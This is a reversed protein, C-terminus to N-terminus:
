QKRRLEIELKARRAQVDDPFTAGGAAMKSDTHHQQALEALREWHAFTMAQQPWGARRWLAVFLERVLHRHQGALKDCHVIAQDPAPFEASQELLAEALSEILQQADRAAAGLRVLAAAVDPNYDAALQPLLDHRIRNRTFGRDRNSSDDCYPQGLDALYAVIESRRVDLLPRILTVADSLRRVRRIGGLGALGTGRLVRHLVTEAQDDATHATVVYRAGIREATARLFAYRQERAGAEIGDPHQRAADPDGEGLECGFGLRAALEAVFQAENAAESRLRHNIHGVVIRGRGGTKLAALARLLAVSDTGGSVAVLLTFDRWKEPPWAAALAQKLSRITNSDHAMISEM